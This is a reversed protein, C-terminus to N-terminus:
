KKSKVAEAPRFRLASWTEDISIQTVPRLGFPEAWGWSSDRSLDSKIKGSKKPYSMWLIGDYKVSAVAKEGWEALEASNKAFVHVFDCDPEPDTLLIFDEPLEGLTTMYGEPANLILGRQHPQLRLKKHLKNEPM